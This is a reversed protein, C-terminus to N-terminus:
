VVGRAVVVVLVVRGAVLRVLVAVHAHIITSGGVAGRAVVVLVVALRV